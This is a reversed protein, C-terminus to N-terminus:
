GTMVVMTSQNIQRNSEVTTVNMSFNTIISQINLYVTLNQTLSMAIMNSQVTMNARVAMVIMSARVAMVIMNSQVTMNARVAMVIM